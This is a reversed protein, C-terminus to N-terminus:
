SSMAKSCFNAQEKRANASLRSKSRKAHYRRCGTWSRSANRMQAIILFQSQATGLPTNLALVRVKITLFLFIWGQSNRLSIGSPRGLWPQRYCANPPCLIASLNLMQMATTLNSQVDDLSEQLKLLTSERFPYLLGRRHDRLKERFGPTTDSSDIRKVKELEEAMEKIASECDVIKSLVDDTNEQKFDKDLVEKLLGLTSSLGQTSALVRAVNQKQDKWSGYYKLLGQCVQIGLSTIGVAAGLIDAM